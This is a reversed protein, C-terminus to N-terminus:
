LRATMSKAVEAPVSLWCDNVSLYGRAEVLEDGLTQPLFGGLSSRTKKGEQKGEVEGSREGVPISGLYRRDEFGAPRLLGGSPHNSEM